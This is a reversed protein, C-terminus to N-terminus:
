PTEEHIPVAVPVTHKRDVAFTWTEAPPDDDEEEERPEPPLFTRLEDAFRRAENKSLTMGVNGDESWAPLADVGLVQGLLDTLDRALMESM